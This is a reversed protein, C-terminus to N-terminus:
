RNLAHTYSRVEGNPWKVRLKLVGTKEDYSSGERLVEGGGSDITRQIVDRTAIRVAQKYEEPKGMLRATRDKFVQSNLAEDIDKQIKGSDMKVMAAQRAQLREYELKSDNININTNARSKEALETKWQFFDGEYGEAKAKQYDSYSASSTTTRFEDFSGTYGDKLAYQYNKIDATLGDEKNLKAEEIALKRQDIANKRQALATNATLEDQAMKFKLASGIDQPTLGALDSAPVDLPSSSPNSNGSGGSLMSIFQELSKSSAQSSPTPSVQNVATPVGATGTAENRLGINEQPSALPTAAGPGGSAQFAGVPGSISMKDKDVSM